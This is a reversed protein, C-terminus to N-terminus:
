PSEDVKDGLIFEVLHDSNYNGVYEILQHATHKVDTGKLKHYDIYLANIFAKFRDLMNSTRNYTEIIKNKRELIDAFEKSLSDLENNDQIDLDILSTVIQYEKHIISCETLKPEVLGIM